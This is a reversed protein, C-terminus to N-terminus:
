GASGTRGKLYRAYSEVREIPDHEPTFGLGDAAAAMDACTYTQYFRAISAPMEFYETPCSAAEVGLGRRVADAVENFSTARGSGANYVGPRPQGGGLGSAAITQAVIDEVPVQDRAQDGGSFLRPRGGALIQQALQHAMSAMSGKAGEGPGFVNFYRLGVIQPEPEGAALREERLRRHACEMLWKSFGYVNEPRGASGEAFPVRDAAEGPTGYTAASSAYVLPVEADAATELMFRWAEGANERIMEAEDDITTNTIAGLHIIAAPRREVVLSTWDVRDVSEPVVEGAFPAGAIRDCSEVLTAFSGSRMPDIVVAHSGPHDRQLTAALNSAIFGCGGTIVICPPNGTM